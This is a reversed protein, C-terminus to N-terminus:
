FDSEQNLSRSEILFKKIINIQERDYAKLHYKIQRKRWGEFVTIKIYHISFISELEITTISNLPFEVVLKKRTSLFNKHQISLLHVSIELFIYREKILLISLFVVTIMCFYVIWELDLSIESHKIMKVIILVIIFVSLFILLTARIYVNKVNNMELLM